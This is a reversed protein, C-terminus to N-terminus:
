RRQRGLLSSTRQPILLRSASSQFSSSRSCPRFYDDSSHSPGSFDSFVMSARPTVELGPSALPWSPLPWSDVVSDDTSPDCLLSHLTDSSMTDSQKAPKRSLVSGLGSRYRHKKPTPKDKALREHDHEATFLDVSGPSGPKSDASSASRQTRNDPIIQEMEPVPNLDRIFDVLRRNSELKVKAEKPQLANGQAPLNRICAALQRTTGDEIRANRPEMRLRSKPPVKPPLGTPRYTVVTPAAPLIEPVVAVPPSVRIQISRPKVDLAMDARLSKEENFSLKESSRELQHDPEDTSREWLMDIEDHEEMPTGVTPTAPASVDSFDTLDPCDDSGTSMISCAPSCNSGGDPIGFICDAPLSDMTENCTGFKKYTDLVSLSRKVHGTQLVFEVNYRKYSQPRHDLARLASEFDSEAQDLELLAFNMHGMLFFTLALVEKTPQSEGLITLAPAFDGLRACILATNILCLAQELDSKLSRALSSFTEAAAQWEFGYYLTTAHEWVHIQQDTLELPTSAAKRTSGKRSPHRAPVPVSRPVTHSTTEM